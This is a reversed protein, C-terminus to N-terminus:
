TVSTIKIQGQQQAAKSGTLKFDYLLMLLGIDNNCPGKTTAQSKM